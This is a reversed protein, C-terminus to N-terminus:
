FYLCCNDPLRNTLLIRGDLSHSQIHMHTTSTAVVILHINAYFKAIKISLFLYQMYCTCAYTIIYVAHHVYPITPLKQPNLNEHIKRSSRAHMCYDEDFNKQAHMLKGSGGLINDMYQCTFYQLCFM